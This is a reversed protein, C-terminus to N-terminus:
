RAGAEELVARCRSGACGGGAGSLRNTGLQGPGGAGGGAVIWIMYPNGLSLGQILIGGDVTVDEFTPM